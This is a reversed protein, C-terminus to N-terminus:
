LLPPPRDLLPPPRDLLPPSRYLLPPPRDLLPPSQYLLPPPRYLLPPSRDLLPPPWAAMCLPTLGPQIPCSGTEKRRPLSVGTLPTTHPIYHLASARREHRERRGEYEMEYKKMAFSHAVLMLEVGEVVEAARGGNGGALAGLTVKKKGERVVTTDDVPGSVANDTAKFYVQLPRCFGKCTRDSSSAESHDDGSPHPPIEMEEMQCFGVESSLLYESFQHPKFRISRYTESIRPTLKKRKEYSNWPQPEFIFKGGPKLQRFARRFTRRVADDGYNLHIWKIVSLCLIVDFEPRSFEVASEDKGAYNGPVFCVNNPFSPPPSPAQDRASKGQKSDETSTKSESLPLHAIHLPGYLLRMSKPFDAEKTPEGPKDPDPLLYHKINKRAVKVLHNDIDLGVIRRPEFDRAICLTVHGINCGIDLVAKHTFWDRVKEFARLRGDTEGNPLRKGYYRTYNGFPFREQKNNNGGSKRGGSRNRGRQKHYQQSRNAHQTQPVSKKHSPLTNTSGMTVSKEEVDLKPVARSEVEPAKEEKESLVVDKQLAGSEEDPPAKPVEDKLSTTSVETSDSQLATPCLSDSASNIVSSPRPSLVPTSDPIVNIVSGIMMSMGPSEGGLTSGATRPSPIPTAHPTPPPTADILSERRKLSAVGATSSTIRKRLFMRNHDDGDDGGATAAISSKSRYKLFRKRGAAANLSRQNEKGHIREYNLSARRHQFHSSHGNHDDDNTAAQNEVNGGSTMAESSPSMGRQSPSLVGKSRFQSSEDERETSDNGSGGSRRRKNAWTKRGTSFSKKRKRFRYPVPPEPIRPMVDTVGGTPSTNASASTSKPSPALLNLPDEINSPIVVAVDEKSRTPTAFPSSKPTANAQRSIHEDQLSGLNLPDLVNGGLHFGSPPSIVEDRRSNGPKRFRLSSSRPTQLSNSRQRHSFSTGSKFNRVSNKIEKEEM